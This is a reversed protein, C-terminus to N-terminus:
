GTHVNTWTGDAISRIWSGAFPMHFIYPPPGLMQIAAMWTPSELSVRTNQSQGPGVGVVTATQPSPDGERERERERGGREERESEKCSQYKCLYFYIFLHM